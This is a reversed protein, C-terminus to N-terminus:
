RYAGGRPAIEFVDILDKERDVVFSVRWDGVRLRFGHEVGKLTTLNNNAAGPDAAIRAMAERIDQSKAAQMGRLAKLASKKYTLRM